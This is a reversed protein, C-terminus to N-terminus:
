RLIKKKIGRAFNRVSSSQKAEVPASRKQQRALMEETTNSKHKWEELAANLDGEAGILHWFRDFDYEAVELGFKMKNDKDKLFLEINSNVTKVYDLCVDFDDDQNLMLIGDRYARSIAGQWSLRKAHSNAVDVENRVLHVFFADNGFRHELRGLLWALRNDAEIHAIPYDFRAAGILRTRTEHGATYNTIHSCARIFAESGCRGTCLVFVVPYM